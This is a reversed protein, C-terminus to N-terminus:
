GRIRRYGRRGKREGELITRRRDGFALVASPQLSVAGTKWWSRAWGATASTRSSALRRSSLGSRRHRDDYRIGRARSRHMAGTLKEITIPKSMYDDMGAGICAERDGQMANATLAIIWPRPMGEERGRRRIQRTTELGDMEPMNCM